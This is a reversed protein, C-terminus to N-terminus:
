AATRLQAVTDRYRVRAEWAIWGLYVNGGLSCCLLVISLLLVTWPRGASAPLEPKQTQVGASADGAPENFGAQEIPESPVADAPLAAPAQPASADPSWDDAPMEPTEFPDPENAAAPTPEGASQGFDPGAPLAVDSPSVIGDPEAPAAFGGASTSEAAPGPLGQPDNTWAPPLAAESAAEPPFADGPQGAAPPAGLERPLQGSGVIVRYRRVDVEDPVESAIEQTGDALLELLQPEIQITYEHGGDPLPQWGVEVGVAATAVLFLLSSMSNAESHISQTDQRAIM